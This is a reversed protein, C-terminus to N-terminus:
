RQEVLKFDLELKITDAVSLLVPVRPQDMKIDDFTLSTAATGEVQGDKFQATGKWVTPHTVGRVTLDAKMELPAAGSKPLPLKVGKIETPVLTVTPYTSADLLRGRVYGDRRNQDSVFTGADLTFKSADAIVKGDRDFSIAGTLNKTEGVADNPLDRGMLQERVRYRAANGDPALVLRLAAAQHATGETAQIPASNVSSAYAIEPEGSSCASIAMTLVAAVTTTTGFYRVNMIIGM